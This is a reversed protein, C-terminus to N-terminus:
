PTDGGLLDHFKTITVLDDSKLLVADEAKYLEAVLVENTSQTFDLEGGMLLTANAGTGALATGDFQVRGGGIQLRLPDDSLTLFGDSVQVAAVTLDDATVEGGAVFLGMFIACHVEVRVDAFRNTRYYASVYNIQVLDSNVVVYGKSVNLNAVVGIHIGNITMAPIADIQRNSNVVITDTLVSSAGMTAVTLYFAGSGQHVIKTANTEFQATSTGIDFEFGEGVFILEFVFDVGGSLTAGGWSGNALDELTEIVNHFAGAEKATVDMKDNGVKVASVWPNVETDAHYLTGSGAGGNIAAILNDLSESANAGILVDRAAVLTIKFRYDIQEQEKFVDVFEDNNANGTLTLTGTAKTGNFAEMDTAPGLVADEPFLLTDGDVPLGNDYNNVNGLADDETGFWRTTKAMTESEQTRRKDQARHWDGDIWARQGSCLILLTLTVFTRRLM